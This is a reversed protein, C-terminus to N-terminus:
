WRKQFASNLKVTWVWARHGLCKNFIVKSGRRPQLCDFGRFRSYWTIPEPPPDHLETPFVDIKFLFSYSFVKQTLVKKKRWFVSESCKGGGKGHWWKHLYDWDLNQVVFGRGQRRKHPALPSQVVNQLRSVHTLGNAHCAEISWLAEAWWWKITHLSWSLESSIQVGQHCTAPSVNWTLLLRRWGTSVQM